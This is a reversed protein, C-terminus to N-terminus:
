VNFNYSDNQSNLKSPVFAESMNEQKTLCKTRRIERMGQHKLPLHFFHIFIYLYISNL